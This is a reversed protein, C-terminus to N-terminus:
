RSHHREQVYILICDAKRREAQQHQNPHATISSDVWPRWDNFSKDFATTVEELNTIRADCLQEDAVVVHLRKSFAAEYSAFCEKMEAHLKAMEELALKLNPEMAGFEYKQHRTYFVPDLM